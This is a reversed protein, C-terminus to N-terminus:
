PLCVAPLYGTVLCLCSRTRCHCCLTAEAELRPIGRGPNGPLNPGGRRVRVRSEVATGAHVCAARCDLLARQSGTSRQFFLIIAANNQCIASYRAWQFLGPLYTQLSYQLETNAAHCPGFRRLRDCNCVEWLVGDIGQGTGSTIGSLLMKDLCRQQMGQTAPRESITCM